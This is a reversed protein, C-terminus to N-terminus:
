KTIGLRDAYPSLFSFRAIGDLVLQVEDPRWLASARTQKPTVFILEKVAQTHEPIVSLGLFGCLRLLTRDVSLVLDEHYSDLYLEPSTRERIAAVAECHIFYWAIRNRITAGSRAHMTAIVDFPNRIAHIIKIPIGLLARLRDLLQHDGHLLLTAPNWTKDGMVSVSCSLDARKKVLYSYGESFRGVDRNLRSNEQIEDLITARTANRWFTSSAITENGVMAEPHGDIVSGLLTSGSRANGIILFFTQVSAHPDLTTCETAQVLKPLNVTPDLLSDSFTM